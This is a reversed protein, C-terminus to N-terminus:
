GYYIEGKQPNFQKLSFSAAVLDRAESLHNLEGESILQVLINGIATAEYPGAMVTKQTQNALLQNVYENQAGGGIVNVKEYTHGVMEEIQQIAQQYSKTLSHFVCAAIEGSRVPVPQDTELCAAQIEEIMNAPSFFRNQDVDIISPNEVKKSAQVLEDFSYTDGYLRKVEQIMWFGMINKLFRFRYDVGGENTFNYARAQESCIPEDHEVGLLSWTGSSLYITKETEPVAVVASATDHTAPIIVDLDFGFEQVLEPRLGGLNTGPLVIEGFWSHPVGISDILEQDWQKTKANMLQTSTANTYENVKKGTLLFHFYDPIMLFRQANAVIDPNSNRLAELQYITNFSQFQIGSLSYMEERSIRETVKEMVGDTRSDRYAVASGLLQDDADLLVFDVAWTDIGITKPNLGKERCIHIGHKIENFLYDIDWCLHGSHPVMQNSFRHIEQLNLSQNELTGALVRGSSAGLDVAIHTSAM